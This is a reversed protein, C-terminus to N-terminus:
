ICFLCVYVCGGFECVKMAFRAYNCVNEWKSQEGYAAGDGTNRERRM